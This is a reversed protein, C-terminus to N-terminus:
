LSASDLQADFENLAKLFPRVNVQKDPKPDYVWNSREPIRTDDNGAAAGFAIFGGGTSVKIIKDIM